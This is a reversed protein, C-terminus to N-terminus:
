FAVEDQITLRHSFCFLTKDCRPVIPINFRVRTVHPCPLLVIFVDKSRFTRCAALGTVKKLVCHIRKSLRIHFDAGHFIDKKFVRIYEVYAENTNGTEHNSISYEDTHTTPTKKGQFTVQNRYGVEGAKKLAEVVDLKSVSVTTQTSIIQLGLKEMKREM